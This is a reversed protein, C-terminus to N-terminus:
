FIHHSNFCENKKQPHDSSNHCEGIKMTLDSHALIKIKM